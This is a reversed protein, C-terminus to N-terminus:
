WRMGAAAGGPVATASVPEDATKEGPVSGATKLPSDTAM